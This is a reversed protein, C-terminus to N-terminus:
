PLPDAVFDENLRDTYPTFTHFNPTFTFRKSTVALTYSVGTPVSPFSYYGFPGTVAALRAGTGGDVLSVNVNKIGQGDATLVRGSVVVNAIFEDAGIDYAVGIPRSQGDFDTTVAAITTGVNIMPSTGQLHLDGASIFLPDFALSSADQTTAAQWAALSAQAVGGIFGVNQAFYDNYNIPSFVSAAALSYVAYRTAGSTQTNAFVNNQVDLAGAATVGATVLMAATTGSAQNTNMNISNNYVKYGGAGTGNFNIGYGNSTVTASGVGTIDSIMNNAITVNAASTASGIQMGFAGTGSASVNRMDRITNNVVYGGNLTFALQIGSMASATTPTSQIGSIVNGNIVFNQANGMLMGRFSNKDAVVTSGFTNGTINWNQDFAVAGQNYISNQVRYIWNNQVTNNNNPAEAAGGLTTGSGGLIGGIVTVGANGSIICNKITNGSAGNAASAAGIWIVTGGTNGYTITLSRDTGGALSGDITVNDAGFLRIMGLAAGNGSITRAAGSPKITLGFGGPLQNLVIAGTEGTLDSTINATVNGSAGLLNLVDFLGGPNTLSTFSGGSGVTYPGNLPDLVQFSGNVVDNGANSDPTTVAASTTYAGATTFAPAAAFTVTVTEDPAITAITTSNTYTYGGPGGITFSVGVSTQTASGVNTFRAQPTITSGNIATSGNAPVLIALAAIDNAPPPTGNPEDAGIDPTADRLQNDIDKVVGTGTAGVNVNPSILSIHLDTPSVYLPDAQISAGDQAPTIAAQWNALTAFFTTPLSTTGIAGTRATTNAPPFYYNNNNLGGTGFAFTATQVQINASNLAPASSSFVDNYLSNNKVTLNSPTNAIRMNVSVQTPTSASPNPDMDGAMRVSNFVVSDGNGGGIGIGVGTDGVTGNAKVNYIFNNAVLNNTASTGNITSSLIGVASFTREEIVDHIVNRTVTYNASLLTSPTSSWSEVGLAIGIRDGGSTTNAYDGGVFQITNRSVTAGDDAQMYIGVKGIQDAGFAAPGIINDTVTPNANLNTTLGRTVIGYRSRIIRNAIFANNDNDEGNSTTSITLGNMIIGYTSLTGANQPAGCALELNRITNNAAGAGAGLSSLWVAATATTNSTNAVTLDRNTGTGGIRGDITVNDAGNLKIVAGVISGSVTVAATPRIVVSTYSSTGGSANLVASATETTNTNIAVNIAGQHTGLNIADFADKVTPYITPGTTGATATATVPGAPPANITWTYSAPTPDVNGAGDIARVQFTHSGLSLLTYNQPSTCAAFGGGDLDCAFSAVAANVSDTGSFTFAASTSTDPNPPNTLIQTDPAIADVVWTYTAPTPDVNGAADKARVDFTHSGQSLSTYNKPSTCTTFGGADLQCEFSAVVAIASDTGSFTFTASNSTSPNTPNTLIQTDPATTDVFEDAGIEFGLNGPRPNSDFDNTVAALTLGVDTMPSAAILHLNNLPDVYTPDAELSNIDDSIATRWATIDAYDLGAATTLSGSRFGGDNAGTSWFDNYNSDLNVFTTTVMGIAYSKANVGGGSAIQTTYFINNKLEVTPDTGTIAIGFGPTQSAVTGRDGTMSISNNYVKTSSGIVGAVWIGAPIDPSTSPATVGTIMNNVITNPGTTGGAVAIGSASYGVTSLSAIGNIKNRAVLANTVAGSSTSTTDVGQTGVGIGIADASENTETAISNETIQAGDDNFIVIGVRRVRDTTTASLDNQTIVTGTNQNAASLGASYIGYISRKVTCNEVRNGDNDTGVTGPTNGGLAIGVLTTTPDQGLINVNKITNNQAGNTGSGVSIVVATTGTNTNQITLERLAPNGGALDTLSAATSGDIRVRDAGNLRLLASANTGTIARPAGSPKILMTYGGVGDESWQNLAVTGLEAALDSTLNITVNGTLAGANIAEFIGGTNTLSTFTEATGVNYSGTFATVITYQNPTTPPTTVTNVDTGTFGGGPNSGLNGLTDQAVVFYRVVDTAVVGGVLSNDITCDWVGNNVTGSSLSCATSFNSGANKNFYIRPALGATAVGTVDTITVSQIRNTTLSTNGLATYSIGPASLDVGSFNGADAGIDTPTFSARTQGDFDNTVGVDAGNGEAVTSLTPHLHLDPTANTPDNYQPNFEFSGSDQGVAAKWAAINAVDLSNFFGFMAGSGNAFYLNNNITLGAPNPATGNIKVAYNIGTAGSNSRANFFINDRFSRTNTVQTGNFAYSAGTGAAPSGGIYVSNHFFSNTGLPENIGNIGTTGANTAAAGIANATGAGIAIMNNRYTTTGGAVRIGNVEAAASTTAATLGYINNREVVNATGGTFQIGTVVNAGAADTNALNSITNQALTHNVSSTTSIMGIVSASTTTGTGNNNTLNRVNNSTWTSLANGTAMGIVQSSAGTSTLSISNAVTGGINNTTANFIKSTSTNARLGYLLFTGSAGLNTVSIGGINNANATWDDFSFNYVGYADTSSTTTTSYTLSGTAVQSGITNSSTNASGNTVLIGMFPSSTGTGSSTVGTMSVSAITNSNINSVTGGSIGNHVIARFLGTSGTLTYTGTQTNSAYGIINGTVTFGQVGSTSTASNLFIANHLAGTTWTRTGTQYFRNNTISSDKCGGNVAVGASTVAAGFYDFINNNNIVLGSNGTTAATSGNCLIGKTPLNAGAPGINNNSITNNDNGTLAVSDTSFFIVAGNTAVSMSSSGQINSNTITNNSAGGIFRFTETNSTASVTTNAITLSNGGTNLGDITVNDAGNFDIMPFGATSAGSITRAAGGVPNVSIATYSAAGAGSANLTASAAAAVTPETTDGCVDITVAGTHLGANIDTFALALTAYATPGSPLTSEVEIPGATDCTGPTLVSTRSPGQAEVKAEAPAFFNLSALVGGWNAAATIASITIIAFGIVLFRSSMARKFM